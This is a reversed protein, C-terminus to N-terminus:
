FAFSVVGRNGTVSSELDGMSSAPTQEGLHRERDYDRNEFDEDRVSTDADSPADLYGYGPLEIRLGPGQGTDELHAPLCPLTV